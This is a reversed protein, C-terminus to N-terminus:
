KSKPILAHRHDRCRLPLRQLFRWRGTFHDSLQGSSKFPRRSSKIDTDCVRSFLLYWDVKDRANVYYGSGALPMSFAAIICSWKIGFKNILPGGFLTVLVGAAYSLSTALNALFPTSLGGGGLNSIADSM